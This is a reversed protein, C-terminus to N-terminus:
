MEGLRQFGLKEYLRIAPKNESLVQLDIYSLKAKEKAWTIATEMLSSGLGLKRYDRDVGMGIIARHRTYAQNLSRLDIHGVIKNQENEAVFIRRWGMEKISLAQGKRFSEAMEKPLDLDKRSIPVFLPTHHQGNDSIHDRLYILFEEIRAQALPGIEIKNKIQM